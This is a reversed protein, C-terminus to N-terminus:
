RVLVVSGSDKGNLQVPEGSFLKGTVKWFYVGNPQKVGRTTGDWDAENLNSASFVLSGNRNVITFTFEMADSMGYIRLLDNKADDNPTFLSPIYGNREVTIRIEAQDTCGISDYGTVM